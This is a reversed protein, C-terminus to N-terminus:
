GIFFHLDNCIAEDISLDANSLSEEIGSDISCGDLILNWFYEGTIEDYDIFCEYRSERRYFCRGPSLDNLRSYWRNIRKFEDLKM